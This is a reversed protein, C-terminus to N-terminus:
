RWVALISQDAPSTLHESTFSVHKGPGPAAWTEVAPSAGRPAPEPNRTGNGPNLEGSGERECRRSLYM